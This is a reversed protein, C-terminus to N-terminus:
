TVVCNEVSCIYLEYFIFIKHGQYACEAITSLGLSLLSLRRENITKTGCVKYVSKGAIPVHTMDNIYHMVDIIVCYRSDNNYTRIYGQQSNFTIM